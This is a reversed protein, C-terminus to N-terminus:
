DSDPEPIAVADANLTPAPRRPALILSDCDSVRWKEPMHLVGFGTQRLGACDLGCAQPPRPSASRSVLDVFDSAVAPRSRWGHCAHVGRGPFPDPYRQPWTRNCRYSGGCLSWDGVAAAIGLPEPPDCWCCPRGSRHSYHDYASSQWWVGAADLPFM